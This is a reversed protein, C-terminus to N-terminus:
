AFIFAIGKNQRADKDKMITVRVVRSYKSIVLMLWQEDPFFTLQRCVRDVGRKKLPLVARSGVSWRPPLEAQELQDSM